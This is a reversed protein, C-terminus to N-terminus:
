EMDRPEGPGIDILRDTTWRPNRRLWEGMLPEQEMSHILELFEDEEGTVGFCNLQEDLKRAM